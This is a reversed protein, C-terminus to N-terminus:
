SPSDLKNIWQVYCTTKKSNKKVKWKLLFNHIELFQPHVIQGNDSPFSSKYFYVKISCFCKHYSWGENGLNIFFHRKMDKSSSNIVQFFFFFIRAIMRMWCIVQCSSFLKGWGWIISWTDLIRFHWFQKAM